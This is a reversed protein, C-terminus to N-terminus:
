REMAWVPLFTVFYRSESQDGIVGIFEDRNLDRWSSGAAKLVAIWAAGVVAARNSADQHRYPESATYSKGDRRCTAVYRSGRTDTAGRYQVSAGIFTYDLYEPAQM